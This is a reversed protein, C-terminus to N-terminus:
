KEGASKGQEEFVEPAYRLAVALLARELLREILFLLRAGMHAAIGGLGYAYGTEMGWALAAMVSGVGCLFAVSVEGLLISLQFPQCQGARLRAMWSSVGGTLAFLITVVWTFFTWNEPNRIPM